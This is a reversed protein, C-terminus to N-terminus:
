PYARLKKLIKEGRSRLAPSDGYKLLMEELVLRLEAALESYQEVVRFCAQMAHAKIAISSNSQLYNLCVDYVEGDIKKPFGYDGWHRCIARIVADHIGPEFLKKLFLSQYDELISPNLDTFSHLVWAAKQNLDPNSKLFCDAWEKCREKDQGVYRVIEECTAKWRNRSLAEAINM